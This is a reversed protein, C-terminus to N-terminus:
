TEVAVTLFGSKLLIYPSIFCGCVCVCVNLRAKLVEFINRGDDSLYKYLRRFCITLLPFFGVVNMCNM